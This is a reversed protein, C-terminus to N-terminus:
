GAGPGCASLRRRLAPTDTGFASDASEPGSCSGARVPQRWPSAKRLHRVPMRVRGWADAPAVSRWRSCIVYSFLHSIESNGREHCRRTRRAVEGHCMGGSCRYRFRRTMTILHTLRATGRNQQQLRRYEHPHIACCVAMPCTFKPLRLAVRVLFMPVGSLFSRGRELLGPCLSGTCPMVQTPRLVDEPRWGTTRGPTGGIM